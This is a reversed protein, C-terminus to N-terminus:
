RKNPVFQDRLETLCAAGSRAANAVPPAARRNTMTNPSM